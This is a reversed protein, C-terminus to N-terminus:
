LESEKETGATLPRLAEFREITESVAEFAQRVLQAHEKPSYTDDMAMTLSLHAAALSNRVAHYDNGDAM